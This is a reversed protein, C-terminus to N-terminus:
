FRPLMQGTIGIRGTIGPRWLVAASARLDLVPSCLNEFTVQAIASLVGLFCSSKRAQEGFHERATTIHAPLNSFLSSGVIPSSGIVQRNRIRQPSDNRALGM